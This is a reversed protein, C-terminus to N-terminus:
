EQASPKGSSPECGDTKNSSFLNKVYYDPPPPTNELTNWDAIPAVPKNNNSSNIRQSVSHFLHVLVQLTVCSKTKKAEFKGLKM